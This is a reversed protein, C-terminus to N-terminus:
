HSAPVPGIQRPPKQQAAVKHSSQGRAVMTTEVLSYVLIVFATFLLPVTWVIRVLVASHEFYNRGAFDKWYQQALANVLTYSRITLVLVAAVTATVWPHGRLFFLLLWIAAHTAFVYLLWQESWDVANVTARLAASVSVANSTQLSTNYTFASRVGEFVEEM